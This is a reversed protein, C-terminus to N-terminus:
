IIRTKTYVKLYNGQDNQDIEYIEIVIQRCLFCEKSKQANAYACEFCIGGHGCKMLVANAQKECCIICQNHATQTKQTELIIDTKQKPKKIRKIEQNDDRIINQSLNNARETFLEEKNTNAYMLFEQCTVLRFYSSSLKKLLIPSKSNLRIRIEDMRPSSPLERQQFEANILHTFFLSIDQFLFHTGAFVVLNFAIIISFIIIGIEIQLNMGLLNFTNIIWIGSLISTISFLYFSWFLTKYENSHLSIRHYYFQNILKSILIMLITFASGILASLYMWYWWFTQSWTWNVLENLKITICLSAILISISFFGQLYRFITSYEHQQDQQCSWKIGLFTTFVVFLNVFIYYYLDIYYLILIFIAALIQLMHQMSLILNRKSHCIWCILEQIILLGIPLAFPLLDYQFLSFALTFINYYTYKFCFYKLAQDIEEKQM